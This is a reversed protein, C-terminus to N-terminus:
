IIAKEILALRQDLIAMIKENDKNENKTWEYLVSLYLSSFLLIKINKKIPEMKIKSLILVLEMSKFFSKYLKIFIDPKKQFSLYFSKLNKKFPQLLDLRMMCLEFLNDKANNGLNLKKIKKELDNDIKNFFSIMIEEKSKFINLIKKSSIKSIRAIDIIQIENFDKTLLIKLLANEIKKM